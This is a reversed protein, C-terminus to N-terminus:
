EVNKHDVITQEQQLVPQGYGILKKVESFSSTGFQSSFFGIGLSLASEALAAPMSQTYKGVAINSAISLATTICQAIVSHQYALNKTADINNTLMDLTANFGNNWANGIMQEKTVGLINLVGTQIGTTIATSIAKTVMPHQQASVALQGVFNQAESESVEASLLKDKAIDVAAKVMMPLGTTPMVVSVAGFVVMSTTFPYQKYIDVAPKVVQVSKDKLIKLYDFIGTNQGNAPRAQESTRENLNGGDIRETPNNLTSKTNVGIQSSQQLGGDHGDNKGICEVMRHRQM